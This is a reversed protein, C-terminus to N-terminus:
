EPRKRFGTMVGAPEDGSSPPPQFGGIRPLGRDNGQGCETVNIPKTSKVHYHPGRPLGTMPSGGKLVVGLVRLGKLLHEDPSPSSQSIMKEGCKFGLHGKSSPFLLKYVSKNTLGERQGRPLPM